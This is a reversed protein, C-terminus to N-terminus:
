SVEDQVERVEVAEKEYNCGVRSRFFSNLKSTVGVCINWRWQVSILNHKRVEKVPILISNEVTFTFTFVTSFM